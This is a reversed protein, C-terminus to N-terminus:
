RRVWGHVGDKSNADYSTMGQFGGFDDSVVLIHDRDMRTVHYNEPMPGQRKESNWVALAASHLDDAESRNWALVGFASAIPAAVSVVAISIKRRVTM